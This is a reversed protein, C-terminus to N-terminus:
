LNGVDALIHGVEAATLGVTRASFVGGLHSSFQSATHAKSQGNISRRQSYSIICSARARTISVFLLRAAEEVLGAFPRRWAGPLLEEELGPVFVVSSSLGKSGHMTMIRVRQPLVGTAPLPLLLREYVAELIKAQHEDSDSSTFDRLERLNMGPPTGQVLMNWDKLALQGFNNTILQDIDTKRQTITDTETWTSITQVIARVSNVASLQRASLGAPVQPNTFLQQYNGNNTHVFDGIQLVTQAGVGSTLGLIIRYSVYDDPNCVMRLVARVYRGEDKDLFSDSKPSEFPINQATLADTLTKIQARTNSLLILIERHPLGATILSLCSGAISDAEAKAGRFSWFHQVGGVPPISNQYMSVYQKQIRQAGGYQQILQVSSNLINPACRFCHNLTHQGAAPYLTVFNRIGAPTGHRFSYISQDDDGSAFLKVGRAVLGNVFELDMPNLDQFEDVILHVIGLQEAPNLTGAQMRQVVLQVLEGPLVCSYIKTRPAHFANFQGQEVSSIPPRSPVYNTPNWQGTNWFAEHFSRIDGARKKTVASSKSFESDFISDVEWSDLVVPDAPYAHALIGAGRLVRLALSHLTSTSIQNGQALGKNQCFKQIRLKLDNAAARTYSIACISAPAVGQALLFAVRREISFSKGTGPGAVLRVQDSGDQAATVQVQEAQLLTQQNFAM